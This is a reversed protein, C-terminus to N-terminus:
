VQETVVNMTAETNSMVQNLLLNRISTKIFTLALCM